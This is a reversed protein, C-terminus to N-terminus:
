ASGEGLLHLFEYAFADEAPIPHGHDLGIGFVERRDGLVLSTEYAISRAFM